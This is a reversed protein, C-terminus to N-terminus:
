DKFAVEQFTSIQLSIITVRIYIFYIVTSSSAKNTIEYM